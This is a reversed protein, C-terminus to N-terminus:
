FTMHLTLLQAWLFTSHGGFNNNKSVWSAAIAFIGPTTGVSCPYWRLPNNCKNNLYEVCLHIDVITLLEV